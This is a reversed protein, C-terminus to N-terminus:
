PRILEPLYLSGCVVLLDDDSCMEKAIEFASRPDANQKAAPFLRAYEEAPLGRKVDACTCVVRESIKGLEHAIGQVDKDAMVATLIVCSRGPFFDELAQALSRVAQVNHAGDLLVQGDELLELRGPWRANELGTMIHEERINFGNHNLLWVTYAATVANYVQHRGLLRIEANHIQLDGYEFDLFQGGEVIRSQIETSRLDYVPAEIRRCQWAFADRAVEDQRPYLVMPVGPKAIGAKQRATAALDNGLISEHDIGIGACACACPSVISTCDLEGGIGTEIVAVDVNQQDFYWLAAATYYEFLSAQTDNRHARRLLATLEAQSIPQGDIQIRETAHYLHPSTFLGTRYGAETLIQALFACVSGKGNTGCVHVTPVSDYLGYIDLLEATREFRQRQELTWSKPFRTM